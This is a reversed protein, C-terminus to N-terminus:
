MLMRVCATNMHYICATHAFDAHSGRSSRGIKDDTYYPNIM